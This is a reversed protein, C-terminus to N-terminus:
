FCFLFYFGGTFTPQKKESQEFNNYTTKVMNKALM